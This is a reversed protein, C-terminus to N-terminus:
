RLRALEQGFQVLVEVLGPIASPRVDLLKWSISPDYGFSRKLSAEVEEKSPLKSEVGAPKAAAAAPKAPSAAPRKNPAVTQASVVLTLVFLALFVTITKM